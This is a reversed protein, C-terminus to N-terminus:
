PLAFQLSKPCRQLYRLLRDIPNELTEPPLVLPESEVSCISIPLCGKIEGLNWSKISKDSNATICRDSIFTIVGIFGDNDKIRDGVKFMPQLLDAQVLRADKGHGALNSM